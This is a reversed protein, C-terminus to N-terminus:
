QAVFARYVPLVEVYNAANDRIRVLDADTTRRRVRAPVGAVLSRPPVVTHERLVAGAAVISGTGIVCGDLLVASMGILVEDEITCTHIVARHGISVDAGIHVPHGPDSHVVTGDQLNSRAGVSVLDGDARIITGYWVSAEAQLEVRGLLVAGPAVFATDHVQPRYYALVEARRAARSGPAVIGSLPDPVTM